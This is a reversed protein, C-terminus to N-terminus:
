RTVEFVGRLREALHVLLAFRLAEDWTAFSDLVTHGQKVCWPRTPNGKRRIHPKM